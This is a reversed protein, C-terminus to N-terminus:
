AAKRARYDRMAQIRKQRHKQAYNRWNERRRDRQNSATPKADPWEGLPQVVRRPLDALKM